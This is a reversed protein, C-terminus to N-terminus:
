CIYKKQLLLLIADHSKDGLGIGLYSFLTVGGIIQSSIGTMSTLAVTKFHGLSLDKYLKKILFSKGCGGPGTLFVNNGDMILDYAKQQLINLKNELANSVVSM